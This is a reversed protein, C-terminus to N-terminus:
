SIKGALHAIASRDVKGTRTRPLCGVAVLSLSSPPLGTERALERCAGAAAASNEAVVVIRDAGAVEVAAAVGRRSLSIELQDLNIRRGFVKVQRDKRGLVYLLGNRFYGLDGTYLTAGQEDGLALDSRGTAYGMMVGPGHVVIEGIEGDGAHLSNQGHHISVRSGPIAMGASGCHTTALAGPLCAIRATAETQGYMSVFEGGQVAMREAYYLITESDLAGGSHLLLRLDPHASPDWGRARLFRFTSPVAGVCTGGVHDSYRWFLESSPSWTTVAVSAAAAFASNVISLGFSFDLPLSTLARDSSRLALAEAIALANAHLNGYSLRVMKPVGLSGSTRMLMGLESHILAPPGYTDRSRRWVSLPSATRRRYGARELLATLHSSAPTILLEPQYVALLENWPVTDDGEALITAHGASMAALYGLFGALSRPEDVVVLSKQPMGLMERCRVVASRLERYAIISGDPLTMAVADDPAAASSLFDLAEM